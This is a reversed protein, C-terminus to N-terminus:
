QLWGGLTLWIAVLGAVNIALWAQMLVWFLGGKGMRGGARRIRRADSFADYLSYLYPLMLVSLFLLFFGKVPRGNYSQGAGPIVLGALLALMPSHRRGIRHTPPAYAPATVGIMPSGCNTCFPRGPSGFLGCRPCPVGQAPAINSM